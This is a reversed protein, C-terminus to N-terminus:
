LQKLARKWLNFDKKPLAQELIKVLSWNEDRLRQTWYRKDLVNGWADMAGSVFLVQHHIRVQNLWLLETATYGLHVLVAMLWEDGKCPPTLDLQSIEVTIGFLFTKEWVSKLWSNTVWHNYISYDVQFPQGNLGLEIILYAM